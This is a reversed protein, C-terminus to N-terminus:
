HVWDSRQLRFVFCDDSDFQRRELYRFGMREYFRHAPTNNALPDVLISHVSPDDFCRSLAQKMMISGYGRGLNASEGIWIDIARIGAPCDGWYHSDDAKPDTIEIFGLPRGNLEAILQERGNLQRPLEDEWDWSSNPDAALKHPQEDWYRLLDLDSEDAPRLSISPKM